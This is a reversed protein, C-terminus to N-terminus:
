HLRVAELVRGPREEVGVNRFRFIGCPGVDAHRTDADQVRERAGVVIHCPSVPHVSYHVECIHELVVGSFVRDADVVPLQHTCTM